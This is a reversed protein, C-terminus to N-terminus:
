NLPDSAHCHTVFADLGVESARQTIAEPDPALAIVVGGGGAGALKAGTAGASVALNVIADLDSNSVGIEQLLRHNELWAAGIANLDGARISPMTADLLLGIDALVTDVAPRQAAVSDVMEATNGARGSDIVVIPLKPLEVAKFEPGQTTRRYCVAGGRMCVTHDIGSPNGHFIREVEFARRNLEPETVPVGERAMSARGLAVALAASSGMGRGMPLTSKIGVGVGDEPLVTLLAKMLRPEDITPDTIATKGARNTLSITMGRDVAMALAPHGYVVAHEGMLILKGPAFATHNM